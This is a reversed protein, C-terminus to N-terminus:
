ALEDGVKGLRKKAGRIVGKLFVSRLPKIAMVAKVVSARELGGVIRGLARHSLTEPEEFLLITAAPRFVKKTATKPKAAKQREKARVADAWVTILANVISRQLGQGTQNPDREGAGEEKLKIEASTATLKGPDVPVLKISAECDWDHLEENLTAEVDALTGYTRDARGEAPEGGRIHGELQSLAEVYHTYASSERIEESVIEKLLKGFTTTGTTKVEDQLERIAPIHIATGLKGRGVAGFYEAKEDLAEERADNLVYGRYEPKGNRPVIYRVRFRDNPLKYKEPLDEMEEPKEARYEIEIYMDPVDEGKADRFMTPEPKADGFFVRLAQIINSKGANNRGVLLSLDRLRFDVHKISKFNEITAREIRM